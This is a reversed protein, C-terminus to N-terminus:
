HMETKRQEDPLSAPTFLTMVEGCCTPWKSKTYKLLDGPKSEITTACKLCRLLRVNTPPQEGSTSEHM